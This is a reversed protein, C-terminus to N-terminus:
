EISYRKWGLMQATIRLVFRPNNYLYRRWLRSPESKLRFLWELGIRQM